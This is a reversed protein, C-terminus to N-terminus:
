TLFFLLLFFPVGQIVDGGNDMGSRGEEENTIDTTENAATTGTFTYGNM